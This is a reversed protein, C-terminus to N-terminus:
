IDELLLNRKQKDNAPGCLDFEDQINHWMNELTKKTIAINEEPIDKM